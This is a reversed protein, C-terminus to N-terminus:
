IDLEILNLRCDGLREIVSNLCNIGGPLQLVVLLTQLPEFVVTYLVPAVCLIRM